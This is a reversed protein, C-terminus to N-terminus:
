FGAHDGIVAVIERRLRRGSHFKFVVPRASHPRQELDAGIWSRVDLGRTMTRHNNLGQCGISDIHTPAQMISQHAFQIFAPNAPPWLLVTCSLCLLYHPAMPTTCGIAINVTVM